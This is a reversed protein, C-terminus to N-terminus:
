KNHKGWENLNQNKENKEDNMQQNSIHQHSQQLLLFLGIWDIKVNKIPLRIM